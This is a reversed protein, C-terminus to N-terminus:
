QKDAFGIFLLKCHITFLPAESTLNTMTHASAPTARCSMGVFSLSAIWGIQNFM